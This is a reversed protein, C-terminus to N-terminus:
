KERCAMLIREREAVWKGKLLSHKIGGRLFKVSKTCHVKVSCIQFFAPGYNICYVFNGFTNSVPLAYQTRDPFYAIFVTLVIHFKIHFHLLVSISRCIWKYKNHMTWLFLLWLNLHQHWTFPLWIPLCLKWLLIEKKKTFLAWIRGVGLTFSLNQNTTIQMYQIIGMTTVDYARLELMRFLHTGLTSHNRKNVHKVIQLVIIDKM